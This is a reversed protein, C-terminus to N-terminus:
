VIFFVGMGAPTTVGEVEPKRQAAPRMLQIVAILVLM